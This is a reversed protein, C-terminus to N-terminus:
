GLFLRVYPLLHAFVLVGFVVTVAAVAATVTDGRRFQRVIAPAALLAMLAPMATILWATAAFGMDIGYRREFLEAVFWIV